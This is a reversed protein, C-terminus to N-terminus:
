WKYGMKVTKQITRQIILHSGTDTHKKLMIEWAEFESPYKM